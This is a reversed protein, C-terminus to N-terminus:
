VTRPSVYRLQNLYWQESETMNYLHVSKEAVVADLINKGRQQAGSVTLEGDFGMPHNKLKESNPEHLNEIAPFDREYAHLSNARHHYPGPEVGLVHAMTLQVQTFQFIDYSAGWWIDNSRMTTMLRLQDDRLMFHLTLTCPIDPEDVYDKDAQWINVLAQRSDADSKLKMAVEPLFKRVRPGYAGHQYKSPGHGTTLFREMTPNIRTLLDPYSTGTILQAAEVAAFPLSLKRGVGTILADTPDEIVFSWDLLERTKYGRPSVENGYGLIAQALHPYAERANAFHEGNRINM